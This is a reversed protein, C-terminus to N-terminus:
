SRNRANEGVIERGMIERLAARLHRRTVALGDGTPIVFDARRRKETEPMQRKVIARFKAPTMGQRAMVRQRQVRRSAAVCLTADCRGEGETEFLLPIELIVAAAGEKRAMRLFEKEARRVMPHLIDELQRLKQADRFVLPALRTRDIGGGKVAQPFLKALPKVAKGDKKLLDHVARDASYVAFGMGSLIKAATSKGMGIGGTLGIIRMTKKM